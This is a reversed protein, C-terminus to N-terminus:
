SSVMAAGAAQGACQRLLDAIGRAAERAPRGVGILTASAPGTRDPGTATASCICARSTWPGHASPPSTVADAACSSRLWILCPPGSAPAGSSRTWRATHGDAWEVGGPVLRTFMPSAKLPGHGRAERVPPVAVIDGSSTASGPWAAPIPRASTWPAAAPPRPTSCPAATSTTPRVAPPRQTACTLDHAALDAAIQAGSDGGGVVVARRGTFDAPRRYGTTHLQRGAFM